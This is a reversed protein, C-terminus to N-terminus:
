SKPKRAKRGGCTPGTGERISEEDTLDSKCMWCRGYLDSDPNLGFERAVIKMQEPTIAHEPRLPTIFGRGFEWEGTEMDLRKAYRRNSGLKARVVKYVSFGAPDGDGKPLAYFGDELNETNFRVPKEAPREMVTVGGTTTVGYCGRVEAVTEHKGKCKGCGIAM